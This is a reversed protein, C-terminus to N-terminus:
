RPSAPNRPSGAVPIAHVRSPDAPDIWVLRSTRGDASGTLMEVYVLRGDATWAPEAETGPRESLRTVAGGAVPVVYVAPDGDRNSAFAIRAGDPSWAPNVYAHPGGVVLTPQGGPAVQFIDATGSATGVFALRDGAPAWTPATEPSGAFGFGPAAQARNQNTATATFVKGVGSPEFTFALRQGDASLAPSTEAQATTTLRTAAGGGLPVSYLEANGARYSVFVVTAGAVAPSADDAPETTLRQLDQGDLAVQYVDRNGASVMDFVVTPPVQVALSLAGENEGREGRVELAGAALLRVRGPELVEVAAAPSYSWTVRAAPVPVGSVTATLVLESGRERRGEAALQLAAPPPPPPPTPGDGCAALVAAAFLSAVPRLHKWTM